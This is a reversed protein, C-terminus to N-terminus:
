SAAEIRSAIAEIRAAADILASSAKQETEPPAPGARRAMDLEDLLALSAVLLLRAEGIDGVAESIKKVRTDLQAGLAQLRAEQGAACAVSYLHGSIEIDAKSM